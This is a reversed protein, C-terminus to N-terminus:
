KNQMRKKIIKIAEKRMEIGIYRRELKDAVVCTVGLGAYCDLVIDDKTSSLNIIQTLLQEPKPTSFIRKEMLHKLERVASHSDGAFVNSWISVPTVSQKVESLFQKLQPKGKWNTGFWIRNDKLKEELTARPFRWSNGEPPSVSIGRPSVFSYDYSSSYTPSLMSGGKWNGRPDQDKNSYRKDMSETRPLPNLTCKRKDKAYVLIHDHITSFLKANNAPAYKKQWVLNVVFNDRGFIQDCAVKAYHAEHDDLHIYIMGDPRLVSHLITVREILAKLWADHSLKDNYPFRNSGTNFPPDIYILKVKEQYNNELAKLVSLNEGEIVLNDKYTGDEEKSLNQLEGIKKETIPEMDLFRTIRNNEKRKSRM